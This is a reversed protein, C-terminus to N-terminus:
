GRIHSIAIALINLSAHIFFVFVFAVRFPKGMRRLDLFVFAQVYFFWAIVYTKQWAVMAHMFVIPLAGCLAALSIKKILHNFYVLPTILFVSEILPVGIGTVLLQNLPPAPRNGFSLSPASRDFLFTTVAALLITPLLAALLIKLFHRNLSSSGYNLTLLNMVRHRRIAKRSTAYDTKNEASTFTFFYKVKM